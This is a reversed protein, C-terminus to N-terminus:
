RSKEHFFNQFTEKTQEWTKREVKDLGHISLNDHCSRDEFDRLRQCLQDNDNWPQNIDEKKKKRNVLHDNIKELKKELMEQSADLSLKLDYTEKTLKNLRENNDQIEKTLQNHRYQLQFCNKQYNRRASQVSRNFTKKDYVNKYM